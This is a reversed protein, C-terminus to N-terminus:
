QLFFPCICFSQWEQWWSLTRLPILAVVVVVHSLFLYFPVDISLLILVDLHLSDGVEARIAM